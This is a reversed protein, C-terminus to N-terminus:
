ATNHMIDVASPPSTPDMHRSVRGALFSPTLGLLAKLKCFQFLIVLAHGCNITQMKNSTAQSWGRMHMGFMFPLLCDVVLRMPRRM